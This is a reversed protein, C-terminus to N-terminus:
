LYSKRKNLTESECDCAMTRQRDLLGDDQQGAVCMGKEGLVQFEWQSKM